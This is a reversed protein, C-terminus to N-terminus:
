LGLPKPETPSLDSIRKRRNQRVPHDRKEDEPASNKADKSNSGNDSNDEDVDPTISTLSNPLHPGGKYYSDQDQQAPLKNSNAPLDTDNVEDHPDPGHPDDGHYPGPAERGSKSCLLVNAKHSLLAPVKSPESGILAGAAPDFMDTCVFKDGYKANKGGSTVAKDL